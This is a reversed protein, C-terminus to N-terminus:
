RSPESSASTRLPRTSGVWPASSSSCLSMGSPAPTADDDAIVVVAPHRQLYSAPVEASVPGTLATRLAAAKGRGSALLLIGLFIAVFFAVGRSERPAQAAGQWGAPWQPAQPPVGPPLGPGSPPQPPLASM